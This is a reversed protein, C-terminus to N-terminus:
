AEGICPAFMTISDSENNEGRMDMITKVLYDLIYAFNEESEASLEFGKCRALSAVVHFVEHVLTPVSFKSMRIVSWGTSEDSITKADHLNLFGEEELRKESIDCYEQMIESFEEDTVNETYLIEYKYIPVTFEFKM